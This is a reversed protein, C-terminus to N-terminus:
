TLVSHQQASAPMAISNDVSPQSIGLSKLTFSPSSSIQSLGSHLIIGCCGGELAPMKEWSISCRQLDTTIRPSRCAGAPPQCVIVNATLQHFIYCNGLFTHSPLSRVFVGISNWTIYLGTRCRAIIALLGCKFNGWIDDKVDSKLKYTLITFKRLDQSGMVMVLM